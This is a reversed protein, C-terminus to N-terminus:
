PRQFVMAQHRRPNDGSWSVKGETPALLGHMLRMLVSKGAGNAGLLVTSPGAELELTLPEIIGPYAVPDLRPPPTMRPPADGRPTNEVEGPSGRHRSVPSGSRCGGGPRDKGLFRRFYDPGQYWRRGDGGSNGRIFYGSLAAADNEAVFSPEGMVSIRADARASRWPANGSPPNRKGGDDM